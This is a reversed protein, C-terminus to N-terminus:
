RLRGQTARERAVIELNRFRATSQHELAFRCGGPTSTRQQARARLWGEQIM